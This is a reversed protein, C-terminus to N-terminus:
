VWVSKRKPPIVSRVTHRYANHMVNLLQQANLNLGDRLAASVARADLDLGDRLVTAVADAELDLGDRLATAVTGAGLDLGDVGYLAKAGAHGEPLDSTISRYAQDVVKLTESASLDLGSPSYLAQAIEAPDRDLGRPSYLVQAIEVSDMNLGDCAHFFYVVDRVDAGEDRLIRSIQFADLACGERLVLAVDGYDADTKELFEHAIVGPKPSNMKRCTEIWEALVQQTVAMKAKLTTATQTQM